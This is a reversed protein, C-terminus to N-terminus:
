TRDGPDLSQLQFYRRYLACHRLLYAHDGTAVITGADLVVIRDASMATALRHAIVVTTRSTRLTEVARQVVSDAEADLASTAEDLLLIKPDRVFARAIAIRQRQGASLTVGREGVIEDLGGPLRDIFEIAGALTAAERIDDDTAGPRGFRINDVISAGFLFIDQPVVAIQARLSALTISPLTRGDLLIEGETPDDFRMVLSLLTSKGAGSPGVLAVTEGAAIELDFAQLAWVGAKSSDTNPYRYSVNRFALQAVPDVIPSANSRDRISPRTDLLEFVRTTAGKLSRLGAYLRGLSASSGAIAFMYLLFATLQGPSLETRVVLRGGYWLVVAFASFGAFSLLGYFKGLLGAHRLQTGLLVSLATTYRQTERAQQAYAHVTAVGAFSEQAITSSAAIADQTQTAIRQLRRGFVVAIVPLPLLCVFAVVSLEANMVLVIILTGILVLTARVGEPITGTVTSEAQELDSYLRGLLEGVRHRDYFRPGLAILHDFLRTRLAVLLRSGAARLLYTHAYVLVGRVAFLGILVVVVTNLRGVSKHELAADVVGGALRPVALSIAALAGLLVTAAVIAPLVPRILGILRRMSPGSGDSKNDGLRTSSPVM